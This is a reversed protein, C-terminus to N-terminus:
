EAGHREWLHEFNPEDLHTTGFRGYVIDIQRTLQDMAGSIGARFDDAQGLASGFCQGLLAALTEIQERYTEMCERLEAPQRPWRNAQELPHRCDTGFDAGVWFGEQHSTGSFDETIQSHYFLPLYGRMSPDLGIKLKTAKDQTFFCAAASQLRGVLEMDFGHGVLYFFGVDTCARDIARITEAGSQGCVLPAIDIVPIENFDLQRSEPITM